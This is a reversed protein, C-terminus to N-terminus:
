IQFYLLAGTVSRKDREKEAYKESVEIKFSFPVNRELNTPMIVVRSM